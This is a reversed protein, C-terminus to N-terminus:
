DNGELINATLEELYLKEKNKKLHILVAICSATAFTGVGIGMSIIAIYTSYNPAIKIVKTIVFILTSWLVITIFVIAAYDQHYMKNIKSEM